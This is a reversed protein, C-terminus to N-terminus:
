AEIGHEAGHEQECGREHQASEDSQMARQRVCQQDILRGSQPLLDALQSLATGCGALSLYVRQAAELTVQVVTRLLSQDPKPHIQRRGLTAEVVVRHLRTGQEVLCQRCDWSASASIRVRERPMAGGIRASCPRGAAIVARAARPM